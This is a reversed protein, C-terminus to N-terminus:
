REIAGPPDGPPREDPEVVVDAVHVDLVGIRGGLHERLRTRVRDGLGAVLDPRAAVVRVQVQPPESRDVRVGSCRQGRRWTAHVGVPGADLRDVDAMSVTLRAISRALALDPDVGPEPEHNVIAGTPVDDPHVVSRSAATM